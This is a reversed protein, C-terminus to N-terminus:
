FRRKTESIKSLNVKTLAAKIEKIDASLKIVDDKVKDPRRLPEKTKLYRGLCYVTAVILLSLVDVTSTPTVAALICYLVYILFLIDIKLIFKKVTDKM